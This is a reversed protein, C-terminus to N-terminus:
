LQAPAEILTEPKDHLVPLSWCRCTRGHQNCFCACIFDQDTFVGAAAFFRNHWFAWCVQWMSLAARRLCCCCCCSCVSGRRSMLLLAHPMLQGTTDGIKAFAAQLEKVRQVSADQAAQSRAAATAQKVVSAENNLLAQTRQERAEIEKTRAADQNVAALWRDREHSLQQESFGFVAWVPTIHRLQCDPDM